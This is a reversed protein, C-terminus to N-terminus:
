QNLEEARRAAAEAAEKVLKHLAGKNGDFVDLAAATTGGPSTVAERMESIARADTKALAGAGVLTARALAAAADEGLGLSRGAEALAETFLFYYAPGSGSVATVFDIDKENDVWITEGASAILTEASERKQGSVSPSAYLGSVGEGISSALNPMVRVIDAGGLLADIREVSKGAMVSICVPGDSLGTFSPVVDDALQPKVAIVLADFAGEVAPNVSLGHESCLAAMGDSLKPDFVASGEEDIVGDRLWGKLLSGGMAGAGVLAVKIKNNM